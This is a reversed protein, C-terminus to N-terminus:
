DKPKQKTTELLKVVADYDGDTWGNKRLAERLVRLKEAKENESAGEV